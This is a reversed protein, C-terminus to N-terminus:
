PTFRDAHANWDREKDRRAWTRVTGAPAGIKKGVVGASSGSRYLRIAELRENDTYVRKGNDMRYWAGDKYEHIPKPWPKFENDREAKKEWWDRYDEPYDEPLKLPPSEMDPDYVHDMGNLRGARRRADADRRMAVTINVTGAPYM